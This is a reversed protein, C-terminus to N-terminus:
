RANKIGQTSPVVRIPTLMRTLTPRVKKLSMPTLMRTLTPRIFGQAGSVGYVAWVLCLSALVAVLGAKFYKKVKTTM